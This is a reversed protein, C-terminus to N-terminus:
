KREEPDDLLPLLKEQARQAAAVVERWAPDNFVAEDDFDDNGPSDYQDFLRHFEAVAAIEAETLFGLGLMRAYGGDCDNLALEDFYCCIFEGFCWYPSPENPDFWRERQQEYDAFNHIQCLWNLRWRHRFATMEDADMRM